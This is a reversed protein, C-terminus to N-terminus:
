QYHQRVKMCFFVFWIFIWLGLLSRTPALLYFFKATGWSPIEFFYVGLGLTAWSEVIAGFRFHSSKMERTFFFEVKQFTTSDRGCKLFDIRKRVVPVKKALSYSPVVPIKEWNSLWRHFCIIYVSSKQRCSCDGVDNFYLFLVIKPLSFSTLPFHIWATYSHTKKRKRMKLWQDVRPERPPSKHRSFNFTSIQTSPPPTHSSSPFPSIEENTFIHTM